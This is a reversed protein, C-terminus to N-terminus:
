ALSPASQAFYFDQLEGMHEAFAQHVETEVQVATDGLEAQCSQARRCHACASCFLSIASEAYSEM